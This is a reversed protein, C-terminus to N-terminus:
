KEQLKVYHAAGRGVCKASPPGGLNVILAGESRSAFRADQLINVPVSVM